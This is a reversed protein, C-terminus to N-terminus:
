TSVVAGLPVVRWDTGDSVALCWSGADGDSVQVIRGRNEAAAPLSAVTYGTERSQELLYPILERNIFRPMDESSVQRTRLKM